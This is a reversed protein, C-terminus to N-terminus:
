YTGPIAFWGGIVDSATADTTFVKIEVRRNEARGEVTNNDAKPFYEGRSLGAIMRVDIGFHRVLYEVVSSARAGSLSWNSPFAATNIPQNDTHGEVVIGHGGDAFNKLVPGLIDLTAEATSTLRAQGSNFFVSDRELENFEFRIYNEGVVLDFLHEREEDDPSGDVPPSPMIEAMYTMFTNYMDGVADGQAERGGRFEPPVDGRGGEDGEAGAPPPQIPSNLLGAGENLAMHGAGRLVSLDTRAPNFSVLFREFLEADVQSMAFLLVFFAMLVTFMDAYSAMWGAVGKPGGAKKKKRM